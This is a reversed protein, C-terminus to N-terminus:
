CSFWKSLLLEVGALCVWYVTTGCGDTGTFAMLSALSRGKHSQLSPGWYEKWPLTLSPWTTLSCKWRWQDHTRQWKGGWGTIDSSFVRLAQDEVWWLLWSVGRRWEEPNIASSTWYLTLINMVSWCYCPWGWPPTLPSWISLWFEWEHEAAILLRM